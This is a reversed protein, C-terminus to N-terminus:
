HRIGRYIGGALSLIILLITSPEAISTKEGAILNGYGDDVLEGLNEFAVTGTGLAQFSFTALTFSSPQMSDLDAVSLLSVDVAEALGAGTLFDTLAEFLNPDGLLPTFTIGTSLFLLPDFGVFLDFSGVEQPGPAGLGSIVADLTVTDGINVTSASPILQFVVPNALSSRATSGLLLICLLLNFYLKNIM